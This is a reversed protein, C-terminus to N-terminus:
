INNLEPSDETLEIVDKKNIVSLENSTKQEVVKPKDPNLAKRIIAEKREINAKEGEYVPKLNGDVVKFVRGDKVYYDGRKDSYFGENRTIGKEALTTIDGGGGLITEKGKENIFLTEGTESRGITGKEGNFEVSLGDPLEAVKTEPSVDKLKESYEPMLM